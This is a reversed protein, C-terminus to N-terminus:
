EEPLDWIGHRPAIWDRFRRYDLNLIQEEPIGAEEALSAAWDVEGIATCFHADTSLVVPVGHERCLAAIRRCNEGSGPRSRDSSSNLEVAQGGERFARLVAEYDADFRPDGLHGIVDVRPNQAVALWAATREERTTGKPFTPRHMSAIVMDLRRLSGEPIDLAGSLDTINAECGRIVVVGEVERPVANPLSDFFWVFPAGPMAPGHETTALFRHGKAAAARINELLTSFAHQCILTHTHTDGAIKMAVM